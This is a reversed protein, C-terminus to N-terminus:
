PHQLPAEQQQVLQVLLREEIISINDSPIFHTLNHDTKKKFQNLIRRLALFVKEAL